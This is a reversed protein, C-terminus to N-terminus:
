GPASPTLEGRLYAAPGVNDAASQEAVANASNTGESLVFDAFVARPVCDSLTSSFGHTTPDGDGMLRQVATLTIDSMPTSKRQGLPALGPGDVLVTPRASDSSGARVAPCPATTDGASVRSFQQTGGAQPQKGVLRGRACCCCGLTFWDFDLSGPRPRRRWRARSAGGHFGFRKGPRSRITSSWRPSASRQCSALWTAAGHEPSQTEGYWRPAPADNLEQAVRRRLMSAAELRTVSTPELVALTDPTGVVACAMKSLILEVYTKPTRQSALWDSDHWWEAQKVATLSWVAQVFATAEAAKAAEARRSLGATDRGDVYPAAPYGGVPAPASALVPISSLTTRLPVVYGRVAGSVAAQARFTISGCRWSMTKGVRRLLSRGCNWM